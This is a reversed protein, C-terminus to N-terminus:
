NPGFSEPKSGHGALDGLVGRWIESVRLLDALRRRRDAGRDDAGQVPQVGGGHSRSRNKKRAFPNEKFKIRVSAVLLDVIWDRGSGQIGVKWNWGGGFRGMPEDRHRHEYKVDAYKSEIRVVSRGTSQRTVRM